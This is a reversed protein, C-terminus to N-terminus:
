ENCVEWASVKGQYRTVLTRVYERWATMDTAPYNWDQGGNAWPPSTGILGLINIGCYQAQDVSHDYVDFDWEGQNPEVFIWDFDFRVWGIGAQDMAALEGYVLPIDKLKLHAM